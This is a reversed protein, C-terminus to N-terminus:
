AIVPLEHREVYARLETETMARAAVIVASLGLRAAVANRLNSARSRAERDSAALAAIRTGDAFQIVHHSHASTNM